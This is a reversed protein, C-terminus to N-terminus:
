NQSQSLLLSFALSRSVDKGLVKGMIRVEDSLPGHARGRTRRANPGDCAFDLLDECSVHDGNRLLAEDDEDEDDEPVALPPPPPPPQSM